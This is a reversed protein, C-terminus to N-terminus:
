CHEATPGISLEGQHGSSEQLMRGSRCEIRPAEVGGPRVGDWGPAPRRWTDVETTATSNTDNNTEITPEDTKGERDRGGALGFQGSCSEFGDTERSM